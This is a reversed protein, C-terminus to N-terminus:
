LYVNTVIPQGMKLRCSKSRDTGANGVIVEDEFAVVADTVFSTQATSLEAYDM